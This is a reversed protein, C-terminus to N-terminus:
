DAGYGAGVNPRLQANDHALVTTVPVDLYGAIARPSHGRAALHEVMVRRGTGRRRRWAARDAEREVPSAWRRWDASAHARVVPATAVVVVISPTDGDEVTLEPVGDLVFGAATVLHGLWTLAQGNAQSVSLDADVPIRWSRVLATM